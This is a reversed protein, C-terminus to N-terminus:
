KLEVQWIIQEEDEDLRELGNEARGAVNKSKERATGKSEAKYTYEDAYM